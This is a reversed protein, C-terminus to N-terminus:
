HTDAINLARSVLLERPLISGAALMSGLPKRDPLYYLRRGKDLHSITHALGSVWWDFEIDAGQPFQGLPVVVV